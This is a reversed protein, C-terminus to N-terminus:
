DHWIDEQQAARGLGAREGAQKGRLTNRCREAIGPAGFARASLRHRHPNAPKAAHRPQCVIQTLITHGMKHVGGVGKGCRHTAMRHLSGPQRIYGMDGQGPLRPLRNGTVAPGANGTDVACDGRQCARGATDHQRQPPHMHGGEGGLGLVVIQQTEHVSGFLRRAQGMVTQDNIAPWEGCSAVARQHLGVGDILHHALVRAAITGIGLQDGRPIQTQRDQHNIAGGNRAPGFAIGRFIHQYPQTM